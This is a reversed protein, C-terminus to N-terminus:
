VPKWLPPFLHHQDNPNLPKILPLCDTLYIVCAGNLLKVGEQLQVPFLQPLSAWTRNSVCSLGKVVESMKM